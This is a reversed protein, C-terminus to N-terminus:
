SASVRSVVDFVRKNSKSANGFLNGGVGFAWRLEPGRVPDSVRLPGSIQFLKEKPGSGPGFGGVSSDKEKNQAIRIINKTGFM